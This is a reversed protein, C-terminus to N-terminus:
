YFFKVNRVTPTQGPVTTTSRVTTPYGAADYTYVNETTEDVGGNANYMKESVPNNASVAQYMMVQSFEAMITLPNKKNDYQQYVYENELVLQNNDLTYNSVKQVTGNGNYHFVSRYTPKYLTSGDGQPYGTLLTNSKIRGNEYQFNNESIKKGEEYNEAWVLIGAQYVFKVKDGDTTNVEAIKKQANYTFNFTTPDLIGLDMTLSKLSGDANYQFSATTQGNEEVRSIKKTQEVPKPGKDKKCGAVSISAVALILTLKSIMASRM